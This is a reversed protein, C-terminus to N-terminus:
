YDFKWYKSLQYLVSKKKHTENVFMDIVTVHTPSHKFTLLVEHKNSPLFM